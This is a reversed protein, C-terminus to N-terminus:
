AMQFGLAHVAVFLKLTPRKQIAKPSKADGQKEFSIAFFSEIWQAANSLLSFRGSRPASWFRKVM